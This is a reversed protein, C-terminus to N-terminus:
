QRLKEDSGKPTHRTGLMHTNSIMALVDGYLASKSPSSIFKCNTASRPKNLGPQRRRATNRLAFLGSGLKTLNGPHGSLYM